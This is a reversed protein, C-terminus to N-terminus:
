LVLNGDSMCVLDKLITSQYIGCCADCLAVFIDYLWLLENYMGSYGPKMEPCVCYMICIKEIKKSLGLLGIIFCVSITSKKVLVNRISHGIRNLISGSFSLLVVNWWIKWIKWKKPLKKWSCNCRVCLRLLAM